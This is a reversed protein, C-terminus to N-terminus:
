EGVIHEIDRFDFREARRGNCCCGWLAEYLGREVWQHFSSADWKHPCSVLGHKVANYHIYDLCRFCEEEDDITHEGFRRQWVDSERHKVRSASVPENRRVYSTSAPQVGHYAKTFEAKICGIRKSYADDGTPLSWVFHLHDPLVVAGIIEFPQEDKVKSVADRLLQVHRPEAFLPKRRYTVITFFYTGGPVYFRRYESM